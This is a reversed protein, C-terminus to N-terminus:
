RAVRAVTCTRTCQVTRTSTAVKYSLVKTGEYSPLYM